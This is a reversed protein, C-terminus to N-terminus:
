YSWLVVNCYRAVIELHWKLVFDLWVGAVLHPSVWRGQVPRPHGM